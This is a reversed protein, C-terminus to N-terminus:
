IILFYKLKLVALEKMKAEVMLDVTISSTINCFAFFDGPSVYDAHRKDNYSNIGTSIHCKPFLKTNYWSNAIAPILKTIDLEGHNKCNHHHIDLIIPIGCLSSIKLVDKLSYSVDDNELRLYKSINKPLSNFTDIFREMAVSKDGYVGGTHIILDSGAMKELLDKHYILNEISNSVVQEKPSNLVTFHDPHMSLRINNKIVIEKIANLSKLIDDDEYWRFSFDKLIDKHTAFPIMKSTARYMFIGNDVNWLITEKTLNLNHLIIDKLYSIGQTYISNLRCDKFNNELSTNICAYGIRNIM